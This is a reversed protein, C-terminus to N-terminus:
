KLKLKNKEIDKTFLIKCGNEAERWEEKERENGKEKGDSM